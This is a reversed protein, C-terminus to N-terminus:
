PSDFRFLNKQLWVYSLKWISELANCVTSQDNKILINHAQHAHYSHLVGCVSLNIPQLYWKQHFYVNKVDFKLAFFLM